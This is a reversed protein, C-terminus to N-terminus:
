VDDSTTRRVCVCVNPRRESARETPRRGADAASAAALLSFSSHTLSRAPQRSHAERTAHGALGGGRCVAALSQPLLPPAVACVPQCRRRGVALASRRAPGSPAFEPRATGPGSRQGGGVWGVAQRGARRNADCLGPPPPPPPLQASRGGGPWMRTCLACLQAREGSWAPSSARRCCRRVPQSQFSNEIATATRLCAPPLRVFSRVALSLLVASAAAAARTSNSVCESTCHSRVSSM